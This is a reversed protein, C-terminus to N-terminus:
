ILDSGDDVPIVFPREGSRMHAKKDSPLAVAWQAFHRICYLNRVTDIRPIEVAGIKKLLTKAQALTVGKGILLGQSIDAPQVLDKDFPFAGQELATHVADEWLSRSQEKVRRKAATDPPPESPNFGALNVNEKFYWHLWSQAQPDRKFDDGFLPNLMSMEAPTLAVGLMEGILWRRDTSGEEIFLADDHNSVATFQLHNKIEYSDVGKKEIQIMGDTIWPKLKNAITRADVKGADSHMESLCVWWTCDFKAGAFRERLVTHVMPKVYQRGFLLAPLTEMLTTKGTGQEASYLLPAWKVKVGPNQLVFAYLRVLWQAFVGGTPQGKDDLVRRLLWELPAIQEPKPRVPEIPIAKYANLYTHGDDDSYSEPGGPNFAMRHVSRRWKAARMVDSAMPVEVTKKGSPVPPLYPGFTNNLQDVGMEVGALGAAAGISKVPHGPMLFYRKAGGTQLVVWNQMLTRIERHAAGEAEIMEGPAVPQPKDSEVTTVVQFEDPDAPMSRIDADLTALARGELRFSKWVSYAEVSGSQGNADAVSWKPDRASWMSWINFGDQSGQFEAHLKAGVKVWDARCMGPDQTNLWRQISEPAAGSPVAVTPTDNAVPSRLEDWIAELAAPLPPLNHWDACLGFEWIYPKGRGPHITPPLADQQTNGGATACRFDLAMAERPNGNKDTAPYPACAVGPRAPCAYLLKASDVKGSSIRVADDADMLADLDVGKESLWTAAVPYNDIDLAMTGSYAHLLGVGYGLPFAEPVRMEHGAENWDSDRPGKSGPQIRCLKWGHAIYEAAAQRVDDTM